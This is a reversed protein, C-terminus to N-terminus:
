ILFMSNSAIQAHRELAIWIYWSGVFGIQGSFFFYIMSLYGDYNMCDYLEYRFLCLERRERTVLYIFDLFSFPYRLTSEKPPYRVKGRKLSKLSSAFAVWIIACLFSFRISPLTIPHDQGLVLGCAHFFMLIFCPNDSAFFYFYFYFLSDSTTARPLTNHHELIHSDPSPASGQVPPHDVLEVKAIKSVDTSTSTAMTQALDSAAAEFVKGGSLKSPEATPM